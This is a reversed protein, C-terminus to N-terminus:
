RMIRLRKQVYSLRSLTQFRAVVPVALSKEPVEYSHLASVAASLKEFLDSRSKMMVLFEEAQEVKGGWHFHSEVPELYKRMCYAKNGYTAASKEAEQKNPTTVFVIIYENKM